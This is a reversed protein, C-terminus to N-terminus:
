RDDTEALLGAPKERFAEEDGFDLGRAPQLFFDATFNNKEAVVAVVIRAFGLGNQTMALGVLRRDEVEGNAM